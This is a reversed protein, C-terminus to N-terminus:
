HTSILTHGYDNNVKQKWSTFIQRHFPNFVLIFLYISALSFYFFFLNDVFTFVVVVSCQFWVCGHVQNVCLVYIANIQKCEKQNSWQSIPMRFCQHCCFHIAAVFDFIPFIWIHSLNPHYYQCQKLATRKILINIRTAWKGSDDWEKM